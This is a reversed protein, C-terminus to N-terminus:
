CPNLSCITDDSRTYYNFLEMDKKYLEAIKNRNEDNIKGRNKISVNQKPYIIDTNYGFLNLVPLFEDITLVLDINQTWYELNYFPKIKNVDEQRIDNVIDNLSINTNEFSEIIKKPLDHLIKNQIRYNLMSEFRDIPNRIITFKVDNDKKSQTHSINKIKFLKLYQDAYTGGTKPIHVFILKSGNKIKNKMEEIIELKWKQLNISEM